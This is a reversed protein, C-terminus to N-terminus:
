RERFSSNIFAVLAAIEDEKLKLNPMEVSTISPDALFKKLYEDALQKHTLDRVSGAGHCGVCGKAVFLRKGRADKSVSLPSSSEIQIVKLPDLTVANHVRAMDNPNFGGDIRITWEGPEAFVLSATYEGKNKTQVAIGKAELGQLTTARVTPQLGSILKNGHQRVSFTLTVPKGAVAYDPLNNVTIISWGGAHAATIMLSWAVVAVISRICKRNM